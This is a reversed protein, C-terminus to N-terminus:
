SQAELSNSSVDFDTDVDAETRASPARALTSAQDGTGSGWRLSVSSPRSPSTTNVRHQVQYSASKDLCRQLRSHPGHGEMCSRPGSVGTPCARGENNLFASYHPCFIPSFPLVSFLVFYSSGAVRRGLSREKQGACFRSCPALLLVAARSIM